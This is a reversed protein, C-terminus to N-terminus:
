GAQAAKSSVDISQGLKNQVIGQKQNMKTKYMFFGMVLILVVIGILFPLRNTQVIKQPVQNFM